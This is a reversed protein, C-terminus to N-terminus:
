ALHSLAPLRQFVCATRETAPLTIGKHLTGVWMALALTVSAPAGTYTFESLPITMHTRTAQKVDPRDPRGNRM